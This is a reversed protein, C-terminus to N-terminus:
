VGFLKNQVLPFNLNAFEGFYKLAAEDYANAADEITKFCGLHISKKQIRIKARILNNQYYVGLYGTNSMPLVNMKNQSNTCNRLNYKQNNLGNHDKHDVQLESPTNLIVRHMKIGPRKGNFIKESRVAYCTNRHKHAQWFWQNLYEYDEDDVLAVKGQTLKIEKM